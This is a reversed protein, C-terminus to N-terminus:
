GVCVAWGKALMEAPCSGSVAKRLAIEDSWGHSAHVWSRICSQSVLRLEVAKRSRFSPYRSRRQDSSTAESATHTRLQAPQLPKREAKDRPPALILDDTHRILPSTAPTGYRMGMVVTLGTRSSPSRTTMSTNPGIIEEEVCLPAVNFM